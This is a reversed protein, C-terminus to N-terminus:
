WVELGSRVARECEGTRSAYCAMNKNQTAEGKVNSSIVRKRRERELGRPM